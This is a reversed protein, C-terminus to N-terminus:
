FTLFTGSRRYWNVYVQAASDGPSLLMLKPANEEADVGPLVTAMSWLRELLMVPDTEDPLGLRGAIASKFNLCETESLPEYNPFPVGPNTRTFNEVKITNM